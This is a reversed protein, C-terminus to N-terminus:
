DKGYIFKLLQDKQSNNIETLDSILWGSNFGPRNYNNLSFYWGDVSFFHYKLNEVTKFKLLGKKVEYLFLTLYDPKYDALTYSEPSGNQVLAKRLNMFDLEHSMPHLFEKTEGRQKDFLQDYANFSIDSIVWEYGLGEKQIKMYLTLPQERGEYEFVTNVVAFWDKSRLSLFQATQSNTATEIFKNKLAKSIQAYEEDFLVNIYRKRLRTNRYRRDTPELEDGRNTEEGNFRKFFQNLQKTSALLQQEIDFDDNLVQASAYGTCLAAIVIIVSIKKM